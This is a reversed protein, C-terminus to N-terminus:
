EGGKKVSRGDGEIEYTLLSQSHSKEIRFVVANQREALQRLETSNYVPVEAEASASLVFLLLSLPLCVKGKGGYGTGM